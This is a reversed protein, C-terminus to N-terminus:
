QRVGDVKVVDCSREIHPDIEGAIVGKVGAIRQEGGDCNGIWVIQRQANM